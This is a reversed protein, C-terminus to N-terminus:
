CLLHLTATQMNTIIVSTLKSKTM